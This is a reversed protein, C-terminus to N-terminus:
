KHFMGIFVGSFMFSLIALIIFAPITAIVWKVMLKVISLFPMDFDVVKVRVVDGKPKDRFLETIDKRENM